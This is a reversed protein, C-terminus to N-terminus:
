GEKGGGFNTGGKSGFRSGDTRDCGGGSDIHTGLIAKRKIGSHAFFPWGGDFLTPGNGTDREFSPDPNFTVILIGKIPLINGGFVVEFAFAHDQKAQGTGKRRQTGTLHDGPIIGCPSFHDFVQADIFHVTQGDIIGEHHTLPAEVLPVYMIRTSYQVTSYQRVRM